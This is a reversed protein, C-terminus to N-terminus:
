EQMAPKADRGREQKAAAANAREIATKMIFTLM